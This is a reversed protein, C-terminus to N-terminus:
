IDSAIRQRTHAHSQHKVVSEPLRAEYVEIVEWNQTWEGNDEEIKVIRGVETYKEPGWFVRSTTANDEKKQCKCQRYMVEKSM